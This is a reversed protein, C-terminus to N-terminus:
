TVNHASEPICRHLSYYTFVHRKFDKSSYVLNNQYADMMQLVRQYYKFILRDSMQVLAEPVTHVLAPFLYECHACTYLKARGWYYEIFNLKCHYVPYFIVLHGAAEI